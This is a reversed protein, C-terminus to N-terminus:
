GIRARDLSELADEFGALGERSSLGPGLSASGKHNHSEAMQGGAPLGRGDSAGASNWGFFHTGFDARLDSLHIVNNAAALLFESRALFKEIMGDEARERCGLPPLKVQHMAQMVYLLEAAQTHLGLTPTQGAITPFFDLAPALKPARITQL